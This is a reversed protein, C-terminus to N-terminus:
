KFFLPHTGKKVMLMDDYSFSLVRNGLHKLNHVVKDIGSGSLYINTKCDLSKIKTQQTDRWAGFDAEDIVTLKEERPFSKIYKVFETKEKSPTKSDFLSYEVVIMRKGYWKQILERYNDEKTIYVIKDFTSKDLLEDEISGHTSLWMSPLICMKYKYEGYFRLLLNLIFSTKGFRPALELAFDIFKNDKVQDYLRFLVNEIFIKYGYPEYKPKSYSKSFELLGTMGIIWRKKFSSFSENKDSTHLERSSKSLDNTTVGDWFPMWDTIRILDDYKPFYTLSGDDNFQKMGMELAHNTHDRCYVINKDNITGRVKGITESIAYDRADKESLQCTQGMKSILYNKITPHNIIVIYIYLRGSQTLQEM